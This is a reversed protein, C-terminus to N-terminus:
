LYLALTITQTILVPFYSNYNKERFLPTGYTIQTLRQAKQNDEFLILPEGYQKNSM